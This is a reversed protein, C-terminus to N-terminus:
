SEFLVKRLDMLAQLKQNRYYPQQHQGTHEGTSKQQLKRIEEKLEEIVGEKERKSHQM